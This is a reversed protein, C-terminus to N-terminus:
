ARTTCVLVARARFLLRDYPQVLAEGPPCERWRMGAGARIMARVEGFPLTGARVADDLAPNYGAPLTVLLRGGPALLEHLREVAAVARGPDRPEDDVGVHELTSVSVVVDYRTAPDLDLVDENRVGPEREYKDVVEHGGSGYHGLVHGVELVRGEAAELFARAIPIEVAREHMWTFNHRHALYAYTRGAFTFTGRPPRVRGALYRAGWGGLRAGAGVAGEDRAARRLRATIPPVGYYTGSM